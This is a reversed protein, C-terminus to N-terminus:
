CKKSQSDVYRVVHAYDEDQNWLTQDLGWFLEYTKTGSTNDRTLINGKKTYLWIYDGENAMIKPMVYVHRWKNSLRGEEDYTNDMVILWALNCQQVVKIVLREKDLNGKDAVGIIEVEMM